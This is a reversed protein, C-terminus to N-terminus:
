VMKLSVTTFQNWPQVMMTFWKNNTFIIALWKGLIQKQNNSLLFYNITPKFHTELATSLAVWVSKFSQESQNAVSMDTLIWQLYNSQHERLPLHSSCILSVYMTIGRLVALFGTHSLAGIAQQALCFVILHSSTPKAPFRDSLFDTLVYLIVEPDASLSVKIMTMTTGERCQYQLANPLKLPMEHLKLCLLLPRILICCSSSSPFCWCSKM